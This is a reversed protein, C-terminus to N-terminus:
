IGYEKSKAIIAAVIDSIDSTEDPVTDWDIAMMKGLIERDLEDSIEKQLANMMEKEIVDHCFEKVLIDPFKINWFSITPRYKKDIIEFENYYM